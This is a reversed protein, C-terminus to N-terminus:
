KPVLNCISWWADNDNVDGENGEGGDVNVDMNEITGAPTQEHQFKNGEKQFCWAHMRWENWSVRSTM